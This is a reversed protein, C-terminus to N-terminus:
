GQLPFYSVWSTGLRGRYLDSDPVVGVGRHPSCAQSPATHMSASVFVHGWAWLFVELEARVSQGWPAVQKTEGGDRDAVKEPGWELASVLSRGRLAM